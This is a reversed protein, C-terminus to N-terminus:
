IKRIEAIEKIIKAREGLLREKKRSYKAATMLDLHQDHPHDYTENNLKQILDWMLSHTEDTLEDNKSWRKNLKKQRAELIGKQKATM